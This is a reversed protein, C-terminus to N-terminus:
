FCLLVKLTPSAKLSLCSSFDLLHVRQVTHLYCELGHSQNWSTAHVCSVTPVGNSLSSNVFSSLVEFNLKSIIFLFSEYSCLGRLLLYWLVFIHRPMNRNSLNGVFVSLSSFSCLGPEETHLSSFLMTTPANHKSFAVKWKNQGEAM